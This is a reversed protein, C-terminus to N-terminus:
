YRLKTWHIIKGKFDKNFWKCFDEFSDFGDNKALTCLTEWEKPNYYAFIRGDIYVAPYDSCKYIYKIEITQTGDCIEQKFCKYGKTRVGTAFHIWRGVEWRNHKDERITHKKEGSLIKDPFRPNFGLIM